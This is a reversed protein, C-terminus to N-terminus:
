NLVPVVKSVKIEGITVTYHLRRIRLKNLSETETAFTIHHRIWHPSIKFIGHLTGAMVHFQGSVEM